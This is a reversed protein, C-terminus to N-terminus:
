QRRRPSNPDVGMRLSRQSIRPKFTYEGEEKEIEIEDLNRDKRMKKKEGMKYLHNWKDGDQQPQKYKKSNLTQPKFTCGETDKGSNDAAQQQHKNKYKKGANIM